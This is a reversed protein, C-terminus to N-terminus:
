SHRRSTRQYIFLNKNNVISFLTRVTVMNAVPAYTEDYDIRYVQSCGMAVLRAKFKVPENQSDYKIKFVWECSVLKCVDPTNVLTWTGNDSLSKIESNMAEIWKNKNENNIAENCTKPVNDVFNRASM